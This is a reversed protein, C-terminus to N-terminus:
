GDLGSGTIRIFVDELTPKSTKFEVVHSRNKTIIDITGQMCSESSDTYIKVMHSEEKKIHEISSVEELKRLQSSIGESFNTLTLTITEKEEISKKLNKPTDLAVIQGNNIFAIRNCLQDAEEMYHTTLLVTKKEKRNVTKKIIDRFHASYTPDLGITPEDLFLIPPDNLMARALAVKQRNGSSFTEILSDIQEEIGVIELLSEVRDKLEQPPILYLSGFYELNERATLKWYLQRESSLTLGTSMRVEFSNKEVDWGNVFAKG